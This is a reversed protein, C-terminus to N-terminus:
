GADERELVRAFAGQSLLKQRHSKQAYALLVKGAATCHLDTREGIHTDLCLPPPRHIKQVYMAQDHDLIALHSTLHTAATLSKMWKFAGDALRESPISGKGPSPGEGLARMQAAIRRTHSIWMAEIDVDPRPGHKESDVIKQETGCHEHKEVLQRAGRSDCISTRGSSRKKYGAYIDGM